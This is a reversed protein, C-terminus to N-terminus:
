RPNRKIKVRKSILFTQTKTRKTVEIYKGRLRQQFNIDPGGMSRWFKCMNRTYLPTTDAYLRWVEKWESKKKEPPV